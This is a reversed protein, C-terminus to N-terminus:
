KCELPHTSDSVRRIPFPFEHDRSSDIPVVYNSPFWGRCPATVSADEDESVTEGDWWGSGDRNLVRIVQGASFSLCINSGSSLSTFDHIAVVFDDALDPRTPEALASDM